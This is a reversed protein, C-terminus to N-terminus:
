SCCRTTAWSRHQPGPAPVPQSLRGGGHRSAGAPQGALARGPQPRRPRPGSPQDASRHRPLRHRLHDHGGRPHPRRSDIIGNATVERVGSTVVEANPACLAPYWDNSRLIRKCGLRYDPTFKARLGADPVQRALHRRASASPRRADPGSAPLRPSPRRAGRLCRQPGREAAPPPARLPRALQAPHAPERAAPDVAAHAPLPCSSWRPSSRPSSSSRRPAPASSPSAGAGFTTTTTGAPRTFSREPSPSSATRARPDGPRRARRHGLDPHRRHAHRPRDRVTWRQEAEDWDAGLVEHDFRLHPRLDHRRAVDHMYAEIEPQGAFAQSWGPNQDATLSYLVSPIDCACGPYRNDHWTGGLDASRELVVFDEIGEERLGIAMGLGSFGAGAIAIEVHETPDAPMQSM